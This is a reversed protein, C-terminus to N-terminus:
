RPRSHGSCLPHAPARGELSVKRAPRASAVALLLWYALPLLFLVLLIWTLAAM